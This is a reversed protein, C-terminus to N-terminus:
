TFLIYMKITSLSLELYKKNTNQRCYHSDVTPFSNIHERMKDLFKNPTKRCVMKGKKPSRPLGSVKNVVNNFNYYIRRESIDLTKLFSLEAELM